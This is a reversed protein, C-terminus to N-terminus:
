GHPLYFALRKQSMKPFLKRLGSIREPPKQLLISHGPHPRNKTIAGVKSKPAPAYKLSTSPNIFRTSM